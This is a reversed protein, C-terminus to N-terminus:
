DVVIRGDIMLPDGDVDIRGGERLDCILDWHIASVNRSGTEPYGLGLAVHATGGIKEDLLIQGTFRTIDFNTGIAAEGLRRAGEDTELVSHLYDENKEASAEVVAGRQLRLRIGRIERGGTMVPFSCQIVGEASDEVPGTFVEGSPFNRKGDSNVWRRGAISVTLDTGPGVIRMTKRPTLWDVLRAQREHMAQWAGVPDPRDLKCATFLLNAFEELSLDADQAYAQTPFLTLTWRLDGEAARRMFTQRLAGRVRDFLANRAPEVASSSRTNSEASVRISVDAIEREYRELPSVYGLQEDSGSRILDAQLGPFAPLLVPYGASRIVERYVARLLPEASTGGSIAVRSGPQVDVCYQTLVRAWAEIRPDYELSAASM